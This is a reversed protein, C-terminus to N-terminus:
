PQRRQPTTARVQEVHAGPDRLQAAAADTYHMLPSAALTMALLGSLLVVTAATE